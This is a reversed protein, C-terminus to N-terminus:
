EKEYVYVFEDNEKKEIFFHNHNFIESTLEGGFWFKLKAILKGKM